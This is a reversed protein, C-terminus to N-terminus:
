IQDQLAVGYGWTQDAVKSRALGDLALPHQAFGQHIVMSFTARVLQRIDVCTVGIGMVMGEGAWELASPALASRRVPPRVRLHRRQFRRVCGCVRASAPSVSRLKKDVRLLRSIRPSRAPRAPRDLGRLAQKSQQTFAQSREPCRDEGKSVASKRTRLRSPM